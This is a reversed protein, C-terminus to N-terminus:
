QIVHCSDAHSTLKQAAQRSTAFARVADRIARAYTLQGRQTTLLSRDYPSTLFGAEVLASPMDAGLLVHFLAQKVGRNRSQASTPAGKSTARVLHQQLNCALAKSDALNAELRLDKLILAIDLDQPTDIREGAATLVQNEIRALRRSTLDTAPNLIYTEVGEANPRRHGVTSNVHISIFAQARLRNAIATREPLTLDQDKSRTLIARIGEKALLRSALKAIGLSIQKETVAGAPTPIRTGEDAGGHGPDLVVTFIQPPLAAQASGLGFLFAALLQM